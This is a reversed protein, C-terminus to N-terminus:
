VFSVHGVAKVKFSANDEKGVNVKLAANCFVAANASVQCCNHTAAVVQIQFNAALTVLQQSNFLNDPVAHQSRVVKTGFFFGLHLCLRVSVM